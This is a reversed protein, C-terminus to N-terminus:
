PQAFHLGFIFLAVLVAVEVLVILVLRLKLGPEASEAAPDERNASTV